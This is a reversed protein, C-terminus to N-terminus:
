DNTKLHNNWPFGTNIPLTTFFGTKNYSTHQVCAMYFTCIYMHIASVAVVKQLGFFCWVVLVRTFSPNQIVKTISETSYTCILRCHIYGSWYIFYEQTCLTTSPSRTSTHIGKYAKALWYILLPGGPRFFGSIFVGGGCWDPVVSHNDAASAGGPLSPFFHHLLVASVCYASTWKKYSSQSLATNCCM